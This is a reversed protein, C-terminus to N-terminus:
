EKTAVWKQKELVIDILVENNGIMAKGSGGLAKALKALDRRKLEGLAEKTYPVGAMLGAVKAKYQERKQETKASPVRGRKKKGTPPAVAQVPQPKPAKALEAEYAALRDEEIALIRNEDWAMAIYKARVGDIPEDEDQLQVAYKDGGQASVIAAPVWDDDKFFVNVEDGVNFLSKVVAVAKNETTSTKPLARPEPPQGFRAVLGNVAAAINDVKETLARLYQLEVTDQHEQQKAQRM